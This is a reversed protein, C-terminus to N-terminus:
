HVIEMENILHAADAYKDIVFLVYRIDLIINRCYLPDFMLDSMTGDWCRDFNVGILYGDRDLIPSGSNGGTTHNSASFAVPVEGEANVYAGYDKSEYLDILKKPAVYDVIDMQSKQWVGKLTTFASYEVGDKPCYGEIVGYSIRMTLNADSKFASKGNMERLAKVYLKLNQQIQQSIYQYKFFSTFVYTQDLQHKLKFISDKTLKSRDSRQYNTIFNKVKQPDKLFSKNYVKRIFYDQNLKDKMKFLMKGYYDPSVHDVYLQLLEMMVYADVNPNYDKYFKDIKCLLATTDVALGKDKDHIFGNMIASLEFLDAGREVVEEYYIHRKNYIDFEKYLSDFRSLVDGYEKQRNSNADVWNQFLKESEKKREVAHFRSLGLVAGQWKKWGNATRAYKSAYQIEVKPDKDMFSKWTTLKVDRVDVRTPFSTNQYMEIADSPLYLQTKGPYGIVMTPDGVKLKGLKIKFFTKTKLPVNQVSYTNPSGDENAYIRFMSFDGTHRPWVWNDTDGGFKGISSPPAGVLRIDKYIKYVYLFYQNGYLLPKVIAETYPKQNMTNTLALIREKIKEKQQVKSLTDLDLIIKDTVDEMRELFRVKLAPSHLEDSRKQAWFGDKLLNDEVSSLSQISSYGCHHNTLLLGDPSIVEGTCGEGFLAVADKLSEHNVSYIDEATLHFGLRQLDEMNYKKLLTPIWMGEDAISAISTSLIVVGLFMMKRLCHFSNHRM